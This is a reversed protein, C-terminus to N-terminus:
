GKTWYVDADCQGNANACDREYARQLTCDENTTCRQWDKTYCWDCVGVNCQAWCFGDKCGHRYGDGCPYKSFADCGDCRKIQDCKKGEWGSYCACTFDNWKDQCTGHKCPNQACYDIEGDIAKCVKLLLSKSIREISKVNAVTMIREKSGTIQELGNESIENGIGVAFVAVNHDSWAKSAKRVANANAIANANADFYIDIANANGDTFVMCVRVTKSDHRMKSKYSILAEQMANATDTLSGTKYRFKVAKIAEKLSFADTYKELGFIDYTAENYILLAVRTKDEGIDFQSILGDAIGKTMSKFSSKGVTNSSDIILQLDLKASRTCQPESKDELQGDSTGPLEWLDIQKIRVKKGYINWVRNVRLGICPFARRNALPIIFSKPLGPGSSGFDHM